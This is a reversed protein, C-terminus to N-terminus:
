QSQQICHNINNPSKLAITHVKERVCMLTSENVQKDQERTKRKREFPHLSKKHPYSCLCNCPSLVM